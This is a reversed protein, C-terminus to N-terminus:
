ALPPFAPPRREVFSAVGEAFDPRRFAELMLGFADTASAEFSKDWDGWVQRKIVAMSAPSSHVALERAYALAEDLLREGPLVRLALGLEGAETGTFTRGSLLIDMARAQGILRPLLWAMGYEAILGRRAFATTWKADAATFVLDCALAHIMGLGACAGNVAAIVPKRITTAYSAPRKDPEEDYTGDQLASLTDFDAGACFARGAGTVVIVRVEPDRQAQELLDFYRRGMADTWANMRDPRNLTLTLVGEALSSLVLESM